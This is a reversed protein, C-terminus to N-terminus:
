KGSKLKAWRKKQAEAIRARGEASMKRRGRGGKKRPTDGKGGLLANLERQLTDIKEKIEAARRLQAPTLDSLPQSMGPRYGCGHALTLRAGNDSRALTNRAM